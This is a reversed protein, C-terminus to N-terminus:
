PQRGSPAAAPSSAGTGGQRRPSSSTGASEVGAGSAAFAVSLVQAADALERNAERPQQRKVATRASDLRALADEIHPDPRAQELNLLATEAREIRDIAKRAQGRQTAAQAESIAKLATSEGSSSPATAAANPAAARAPPAAIASSGMLTGIIVTSLITQAAPALRM